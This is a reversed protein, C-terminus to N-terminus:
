SFLAKAGKISVSIIRGGKAVCQIGAGSIWHDHTGDDAEHGSFHCIDVKHGKAEVPVTLLGQGAIAVLAFVSLAIGITRRM